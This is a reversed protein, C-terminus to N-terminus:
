GGGNLISLFESDSISIEEEELTRRLSHTMTEPSFVDTDVFKGIYENTYASAMQEAREDFHGVFLNWINMNKDRYGDFLELINMTEKEEPLILIKDTELFDNDCVIVPIGKFNGVVWGEYMVFKADPYEVSEALRRAAERGCIIKGPRARTDMVFKDLMFALEDKTDLRM